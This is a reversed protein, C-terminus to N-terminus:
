KRLRPIRTGHESVETLAIVPLLRDRLRIMNAGNLTEVAVPSGPGVRVLERV